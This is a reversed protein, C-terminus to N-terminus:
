WLVPGAGAGGAAIATSVGVINGTGVTAALATMLAGFHSIEGDGERHRQMSLRIARPIYRQIGRLRLTLFVHPGCLLVLMWPGWVIASVQDLLEQIQQMFPRRRAAPM